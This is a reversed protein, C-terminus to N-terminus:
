SIHGDTHSVPRLRNATAAGGADWAKTGDVTALAAAAVPWWCGCCFSCCCSIFCRLDPTPMAAVRLSTTRIGLESGMTLSLVVTTTHLSRMHQTITAHVAVSVAAVATTLNARVRPKDGPLKSEGPKKRRAATSNRAPPAKQVISSLFVTKKPLSCPSCFCLSSRDVHACCTNVTQQQVM